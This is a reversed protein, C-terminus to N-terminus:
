FQYYCFGINKENQNRACNSLWGYQGDNFVALSEPSKLLEGYKNVLQLMFYNVNSNAFFERGKTTHLYCVLMTAIPVGLQDSSKILYPPTILAVTKLYTLM